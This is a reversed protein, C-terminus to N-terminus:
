AAAPTPVESGPSGGNVKVVLAARAAFMESVLRDTNISCRASEPRPCCRKARRGSASFFVCDINADIM